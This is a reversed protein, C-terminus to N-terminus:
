ERMSFYPYSCYVYKGDSWRNKYEEFIFKLVFSSEIENCITYSFQTNLNKSWRVHASHVEGTSDVKLTFVIKIEEDPNLYYEKEILSDMKVDLIDKNPIECLKKSFDQSHLSRCSTITLVGVFVFLKFKVLKM